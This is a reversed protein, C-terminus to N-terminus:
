LLEKSHESQFGELDNESPNMGKLNTIQSLCAKRNHKTIM